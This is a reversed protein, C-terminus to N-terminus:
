GEHMQLLTPGDVLVLQKRNRGAKQADPTFETSTVVLGKGIQRQRMEQVLSEVTGSRIKDNVSLRLLWVESEHEMFLDLHKDKDVFRYDKLTFGNRKFLDVVYRGFQPLSLGQLDSLDAVRSYRELQGGRESVEKRLEKARQANRGATVTGFAPFPIMAFPSFGLYFLILGPAGAIEPPVPAGGAEVLLAYILVFVLGVLFSVFGLMLGHLLYREKIRGGLYLGTGLPVIGALLQLTSSSFMMICWALAMVSAVLVIQRWDLQRLESSMRGAWGQRPAEGDAAGRAKEEIDASM